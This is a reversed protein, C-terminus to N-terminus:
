SESVWFIVLHVTIKIFHSLHKQWRPFIVKSLDIFLFPFSKAECKDLGKVIIHNPFKNKIRIVIFETEM